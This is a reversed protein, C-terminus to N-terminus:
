PCFRPLPPSYVLFSPCQFKGLAKWAAQMGEKGQQEHAYVREGVVIADDVVIGLVLIFALVTMTSITLGAFPVLALTGLLAISSHWYCGVHGLPITLVAALIVLVLLLGGGANKLLVSM